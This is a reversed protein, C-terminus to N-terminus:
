SSNGYEQGCANTRGAESRLPFSPCTRRWRAHPMATARFEASQHATSSGGIFVTYDAPEIVRRNDADFFSLEEFGLPFDVSKSEGPNLTVRTFGKLSRLPQEVSAGLIRVYCQAIETGRRHGTNTVTATAHVPHANQDTTLAAVSIAAV